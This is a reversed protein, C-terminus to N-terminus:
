FNTAGCEGGRLNEINLGESFENWVRLWEFFKLSVQESKNLFQAVPCNLGYLNLIKRELARQKDILPRRHIPLIPCKHNKRESRGKMVAKLWKESIPTTYNPRLDEDIANFHAEVKEFQFPSLEKPIEVAKLRDKAYDLIPNLNFDERIHPQTNELKKVLNNLEEYDYNEILNEAGNM